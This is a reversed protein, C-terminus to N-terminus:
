ASGPPCQQLRSVGGEDSGSPLAASVTGRGLGSLGKCNRQQSRSEMRGVAGLCGNGSPIGIANPSEDTRVLAIELAM